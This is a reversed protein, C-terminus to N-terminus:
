GCIIIIVSLFNKNNSNKDNLHKRKNSDNFEGAAHGEDSVPGNYIIYGTFISKDLRILLYKSITSLYTNRVGVLIRVVILPIRLLQLEIYGLFLICNEYSVLNVYM